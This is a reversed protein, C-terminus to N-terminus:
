QDCSLPKLDLIVDDYYFDLAPQMVPASAIFEGVGLEDIPATPDAPETQM